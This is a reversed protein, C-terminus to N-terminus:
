LAGLSTASFANGLSQDDLQLIDTDVVIQRTLHPSNRLQLRLSPPRIPRPRFSWGCPNSRNLACGGMGWREDRKQGRRNKDIACQSCEIRPLPIDM